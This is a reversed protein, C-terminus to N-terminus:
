RSKHDALILCDKGKKEGQDGKRLQKDANERSSSLYYLPSDASWVRRRVYADAWWGCLPSFTGKAM